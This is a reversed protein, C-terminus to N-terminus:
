AENQNWNPHHKNLKIMKKTNKRAPLAASPLSSCLAMDLCLWAPSVFGAGTTTHDAVYLFIIGTTRASYIAKIFHMYYSDCCSM